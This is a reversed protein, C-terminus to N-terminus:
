KQVGPTYLNKDLHFNKIWYCAWQHLADIDITENAIASKQYITESFLTYIGIIDKSKDNQRLFTAWNNGSYSTAPHNPSLTHIYRKLINNCNQLYILQDNTKEQEDLLEVLLLIANKKYKRMNYAYVITNRFILLSAFFIFGIVILAWWGPALPWWSINDAPTAIPLLQNLPDNATM